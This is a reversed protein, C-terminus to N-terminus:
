PVPAAQAHLEDDPHASVEGRMVGGGGTWRLEAHHVTGGEEVGLAVEFGFADALFTILGRADRCRLEPWVSPRPETTMSTLIDRLQAGRRDIAAGDGARYYRREGGGAHGGISAINVSIM